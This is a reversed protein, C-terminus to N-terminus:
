LPYCLLSFLGFPKERRKTPFTSSTVLSNSQLLNKHKIRNLRKKDCLLKNGIMAIPKQCNIDTILPEITLNDATPKELHSDLKGM